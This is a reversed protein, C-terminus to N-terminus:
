TFVHNNKTSDSQQTERQKCVSLSSTLMVENTRQWRSAMFTMLYNELLDFNIHICKHNEDFYFLLWASASDLISNTFYFHTCLFNLEAILMLWLWPPFCCIGSAQQWKTLWLVQLRLLYNQVRNVGSADAERAVDSIDACSLKTHLFSTILTETGVNIFVNRQTASSWVAGLSIARDCLPPNKYLDLTTYLLRLTKTHKSLTHVLVPAPAARGPNSPLGGSRRLAQAGTRQKTLVARARLM